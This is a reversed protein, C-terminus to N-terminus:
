SNQINIMNLGKRIRKNDSIHVDYDTAIWYEYKILWFNEQNMYHLNRSENDKDNKCVYLCHYHSTVHRKKTVVGFQYNWIIHNVPVFHLEDLATLIDKLSNWGSFVYM